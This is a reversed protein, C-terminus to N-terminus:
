SGKLKAFFVWFHLPLDNNKQKKEPFFQEMFAKKRFGAFSETNSVQGWCGGIRHQM